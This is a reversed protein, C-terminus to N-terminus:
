MDKMYISEYMEELRVLLAEEDQYLRKLMEEAPAGAYQKAMKKCFDVPRKEDDITTYWLTRTTLM